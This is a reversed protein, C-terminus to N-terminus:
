MMIKKKIDTPITSKNVLISMTKALLYPESVYFFGGYLQNTNWSNQVKYYRKGNQDTAIGVIVMGHDDTTLQRDFMEQRSEQTVDIEEVPGKIDKQIEKRKRDSIVAWEKQEEETMDAEDKEKPMVAFGRRYKFGIESVDAAWLVSHGNNLSNDIIAKLEDLPVNMYQGFIWNDPVELVFSRYFPHHTFSTLAVYNDLDLNLSQAYSQPTYTTGNYTFTEPVKGFYADLIGKFGEFWASSLKKNSCVGKLYASLTAVLETHDHADEGYNLGPYVEEPVAGYKGIIYPVDLLGGGESFNVQGYMRVYRLAKEEYCMRVTYMESLDVERNQMMLLESELFTDGSFCWCTGSQNQDRVPTTKIVVVDNFKFGTSDPVVVGEDDAIAPVAVCLALALGVTKVSKILEM